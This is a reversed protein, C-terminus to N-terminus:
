RRLCSSCRASARWVLGGGQDEEGSEAHVAVALRLDAPYANPLLLLNYTQGPQAQIEVTQGPAPRAVNQAGAAQGVVTQSGDGGAIVTSEQTNEASEATTDEQGEYGRTLDDTM